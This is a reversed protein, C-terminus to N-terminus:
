ESTERQAKRELAAKHAAEEAESSKWRAGSGGNDDGFFLVLGANQFAKAIATLGKASLQHKSSEFDKVAGIKVGSAAALEHQNWDLLARAAKIQRPTLMGPMYSMGEHNEV